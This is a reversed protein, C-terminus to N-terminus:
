RGAVREPSGCGTVRPPLTCPNSVFGLTITGTLREDPPAAAGTLWCALPL